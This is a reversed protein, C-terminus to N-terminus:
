EKLGLTRKLSFIFQDMRHCVLDLRAAHELHDKGIEAILESMLRVLVESKFGAAMAAELRNRSEKVANASM